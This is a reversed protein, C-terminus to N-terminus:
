GVFIDNMRRIPTKVTTVVVVTDGTDYQSSGDPIITKTQHTICSILIGPKLPIDKLPTNIWQVSRDVRFELTEARGDAIRHMALVSGMQHQMARVYRVINNSCLEKPSVISGLGLSSFMDNYEPRNIKTVVKGVKLSHGYTSIIINEEDMDTLTVLADTQALGEQDLIEQSSGDGCVVSAQPFREALAKARELNQEIIKVGVGTDLLKETLFGSIRGGGIVMVQRVKRASIFLNKILQAM